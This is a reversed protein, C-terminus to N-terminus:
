RRVQLRHGIHAPMAAAVVTDLRKVDPDSAGPWDLTVVVTASTPGAHGSVPGSPSCHVGCGDDVQPRHGTHLEVLRAIGQATGRWRHLEVAAAVLERRAGVSPDRPLDVALWGALWALFDSPALAPDVYACISDLTTFVPALVEDLGSTWRRTLDDEQYIGPLTLAIPHASTAEDLLGRMSGSEAQSGTAGTSDPGQTTDVELATM